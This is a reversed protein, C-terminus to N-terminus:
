SAELADFQAASAAILRVSPAVYKDLTMQSSSHGLLRQVLATDRTAEQMLTAFTARLDHPTVEQGSESEFGALRQARKLATNFGRRDVQGGERNSFVYDDPGKGKIQAKLAKLAAKPVPVERQEDTKTTDVNSVWVTGGSADRLLEGTVPDRVEARRSSARVRVMPVKGYNVGGTSVGSLMLDKVKLERAEGVRLGTRSLFVTLNRYTPGIHKVLLDVQALSLASTKHGSKRPYASKLDDMDLPDRKLAGQRVATRLLAHLLNVRIRVTVLSYTGGMEVVWDRVKAQTIAGVHVHGWRPRLSGGWLGDNSGVSSAKLQNVKEARYIPWFHQLPVKGAKPDSWDGSRVQHSVTARWATADQVRAFTRTVERNSEDRSRAQYNSNSLMRVGDPLSANVLELEAVPIRYVTKRAGEVAYERQLQARSKAM